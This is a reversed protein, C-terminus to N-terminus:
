FARVDKIRLTRSSTVFGDRTPASVDEAAPDTCSRDPVNWVSASLERCNKPPSQLLTLNIVGNAGIHTGAFTKRNSLWQGESGLRLGFWPLPRSALARLVVHPSNTLQQHQSDRTQQWDLSLCLRATDRWQREAELELGQAQISGVNRYELLGSGPDTVQKILHGITYSYATAGLRTRSEPYHEIGVEYTNRAGFASCFDM